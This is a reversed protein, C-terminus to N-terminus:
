GTVWRYLNGWFVIEAVVGVVLAVAMAAGTQGTAGFAVAYALLAVSFPLVLRRLLRLFM